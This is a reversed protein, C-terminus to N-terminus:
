LYQNKNPTPARKESVFRVGYPANWIGGSTLFKIKDVPPPHLGGEPLPTVRSRCPSICVTLTLKQKPYRGGFKPHSVQISKGVKCLRRQRAHERVRKRPLEQQRKADVDSLLGKPRGGTARWVPSVRVGYPPM